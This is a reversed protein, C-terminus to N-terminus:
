IKEFKQYMIPVIFSKMLRSEVIITFYRDHGVFLFM